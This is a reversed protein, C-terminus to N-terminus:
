NKHLCFLVIKSISIVFMMVLAKQCIWENPIHGIILSKNFHTLLFNSSFPFSLYDGFKENNMGKFTRKWEAVLLIM